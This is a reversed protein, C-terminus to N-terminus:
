KKYASYVTFGIMALVGMGLTYAYHSNYRYMYTKDKLMQKYKGHETYHRVNEKLKELISSQKYENENNNQENKAKEILDIVIEQHSQLYEYIAEYLKYEDELQKLLQKYRFESDCDINEENTLSTIEKLLLKITQQLSELLTDFEENFEEPTKLKDLHNMIEKAIDEPLKIDKCLTNNSNKVTM